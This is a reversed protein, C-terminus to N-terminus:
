EDQLVFHEKIDIEIRDTDIFRGVQAYLDESVSFSALSTNSLNQVASVDRLFVGGGVSGSLWDITVEGGTQVLVEDDEDTDALAVGFLRGYHSEKPLSREVTTATVLSVFEGKKIDSNVITIGSVIDANDDGGGTQTTGSGKDDIRGAADGFEFRGAASMELKVNRKQLDIEYSDIVFKKGDLTIIKDIGLNLVSPSSGTNSTSACMLYPIELKYKTAFKEKDEKNIGNVYDALSYFYKDEGDREVELRAIPAFYEDPCDTEGVRKDLRMFMQNSFSVSNYIISDGMAKGDIEKGGSTNSLHMYYPIRWGYVYPFLLSNPIYYGPSAGPHVRDDVQWVAAGISLLNDVGEDRQKTTTIPQGDSTTHPSVRNHVRSWEEDVPEAVLYSMLGKLQKSEDRAEALLNEGSAKTVDKIYIEEGDFISQKNVFQIKIARQGTFSFKVSLGLNTAIAYLLNTFSDGVREINQWLFKDAASENYENRDNTDNINPKVVCYPIYPFVKSENTVFTSSAIYMEIAEDDYIKSLKTQDANVINNDKDKVIGSIFPGAIHEIYGRGWRMPSYRGNMKATSYEITWTGYGNASLLSEYTEALKLFLEKSHVLRPIRCELSGKKYFGRGNFVYTDEWTEDIEDIIEQLPIEDFVSEQGPTCTFDYKRLPAPSSGFQNGNWLIDEWSFEKDVAGIYLSKNIDPTEGTNIFVGVFFLSGVSSGTCLSLFEKEIDLQTKPTSVVTTDDYSFAAESISFDFNDLALAGIKAERKFKIKSPVVIDIAISESSFLGDWDDSFVYSITLDGFGDEYQTEDQRYTAM